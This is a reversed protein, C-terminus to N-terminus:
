MGYYHGVRKERFAAMAEAQDQSTRAIALYSTIQSLGTKLDAAQGQYVAQKIFQVSLPPMSALRRAFELTRPMLEADPFVRNVLGIRLAEEAEVFDATWLMELAKASGVIRPLFWAGGAGPVLGLRAYTEAMRASSAAFRLDAMLAFDLGAGAAVGNVAAIVPKAFTSLSLPIRQLGQELRERVSIPTVGGAQEMKGVDAGLCFGRGAGTVVLVRVMDDHRAEDLAAVWDTVMDDSLANLKDPRNLTITAVGEAVQYLLPPDPLSDHPQAANM